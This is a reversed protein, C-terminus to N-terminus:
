FYFFGDCFDFVDDGFGGIGDLDVLEFIWCVWLDVLFGCCLFDEVVGVVCYVDEDGVYVGVFCDGVGFLSEFCGFGVDM